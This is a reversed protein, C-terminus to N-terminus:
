ASCRIQTRWGVLLRLGSPHPARSPRRAAENLRAPAPSLRRRHARRHERGDPRPRAAAAGPRSLGARAPRRELARRDYYRIDVGHTFNLAVFLKGTFGEGLELTLTQEPQWKGLQFGAGVDKGDYGWRFAETSWLVRGGASYSWDIGEPASFGFTLTQAGAPLGTFVFNDFANQSGTGSIRDFGAGVETLSSWSSGFAGGPVDSENLTAASAGSALLGLTLAIGGRLRAITSM